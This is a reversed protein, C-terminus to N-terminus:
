VKMKKKKSSSEKSTNKTKTSKEPTVDVSTITFLNRKKKKTMNSGFKNNMDDIDNTMSKLKNVIDFPFNSETNHHFLSTSLDNNVLNNNQFKNIISLAKKDSITKMNNVSIVRVSNPNRHFM